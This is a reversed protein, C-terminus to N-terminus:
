GLDAPTLAVALKPPEFEIEGGETMALTDLLSKAPMVLAAYDAYSMLVHSPKGRDTIIVPGSAAARKAGSTDQNFDRSSITTVSM